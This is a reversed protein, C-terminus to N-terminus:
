YGPYKDGTRGVSETQHRGLQEGVAPASNGQMSAVVPSGISDPSHQRGGLVDDDVLQCWDFLAPLDGVLDIRESTIVRHDM